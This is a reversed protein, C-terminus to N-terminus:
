SSWFLFNVIDVFSILYKLVHPVVEKTLSM